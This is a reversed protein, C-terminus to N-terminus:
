RPMRKWGTLPIDGNPRPPVKYSLKDGSLVYARVQTSGEWNPFTSGEIHFTLTGKAADMEVTGYHSSTGMLAARIEEPTATGKDGGAFKPRARDFIFLSYHGQHDIQLLGKPADGYDHARTGDAHQVDAFDLTWSGEIAAISEKAHIAGHALLLLSALLVNKSPKM